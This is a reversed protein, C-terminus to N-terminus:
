IPSKATPPLADVFRGRLELLVFISKTSLGLAAYDGQLGKYVEAGANDYSWHQFGRALNFFGEESIQPVHSVKM